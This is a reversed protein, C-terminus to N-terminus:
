RLEANMDTLQQKVENYASDVDERSTGKVVLSTGYRGSVQFPYSGLDLHLYKEQVDQFWISISSESVFADISKSFIEDGKELFPVSAELMARMVSPIGAMVVVNGMMFGPATSAGNYLLRAGTPFDAMRLTEACMNDGHREYFLDVVEQDRYVEVDFAKAITKMTIDDHTPGIGGTTFVYTYKSRLIDLAEIIDEEIDDVVRAECMKIGLETMRKAIPNLNADPTRGSLLENGILLVACTPSAM